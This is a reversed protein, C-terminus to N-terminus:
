LKEIEEETLGTGKAIQSIPLGMKKFALATERAKELKDEAKGLVRGEFLGEECGDAIGEKRAEEREGQVMLQYKYESFERAIQREEEIVTLLVENAM